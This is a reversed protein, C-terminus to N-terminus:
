MIAAILALAASAGLLIKSSMEVKPLELLSTRDAQNGIKSYDWLFHRLGGLLHYIITYAVLFKLPFGLLLSGAFFQVKSELTGRLAFFGVGAFGARTLLSAHM